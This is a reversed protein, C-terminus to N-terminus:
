KSFFHLLIIFFYHSFVVFLSWFCVVLIYKIIIIYLIIIIHVVLLFLDLLAAGPVLLLNNMLAAGPTLCWSQIVYYIMRGGVVGDDAWMM